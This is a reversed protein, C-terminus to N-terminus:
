RPHSNIYADADTCLELLKNRIVSCFLGILINRREIRSKNARREFFLGGTSVLLATFAGAGTIIIFLSLIRGGVSVPSIDGYGVTAVTIITFYLADFPPLSEMAMFGFTGVALLVVLILGLVVIRRM